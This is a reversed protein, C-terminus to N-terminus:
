TTKVLALYEMIKKHESSYAEWISACWFKIMIEREVGPTAKLVDSINIEGKTEPIYIIGFKKHRKSLLIHINQVQKGTFNKEVFLHLGVLAFYIKIPNTQMTASQATFADVVHQHIFKEDGLSLTYFSLEDFIEQNNM